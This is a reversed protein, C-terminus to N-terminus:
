LAIEELGMWLASSRTVVHVFASLPGVTKGLVAEVEYGQRDSCVLM